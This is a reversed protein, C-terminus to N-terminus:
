EKELFVKKVLKCLEFYHDGLKRNNGLKLLDLLREKDSKESLLIPISNTRMVGASTYVDLIYGDEISGDAYLTADRTYHKDTASFRVKCDITSLVRKQASTANELLVDFDLVSM